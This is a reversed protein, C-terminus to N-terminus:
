DEEAVAYRELDINGYDINLCDINLYDTNSYDINLYDTNSYDINLYDINSYDIDLYDINLVPVIKKRKNGFCFKTKNTTTTTPNLAAAGQPLPEALTGGRQVLDTELNTRAISAVFQILVQTPCRTDKWRYQELTSKTFFEMVRSM